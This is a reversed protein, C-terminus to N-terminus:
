RRRLREVVVGAGMALISVLFLRVFWRPGFTGPHEAEALQADLLGFTLYLVGFERLFIGVMKALSEREVLDVM